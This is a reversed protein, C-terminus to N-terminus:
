LMLIDTALLPDGAVFISLDAVGDGNVDGELVGGAFRLEGGVGSFAANGVFSFDVGTGRLDVKDAGSVFDIIRDGREILHFAFTDAGAGGTLWDAGEFGDLVDNGGRGDIRNAVENGWIVDRASSGIANEITTGYAISLNMYESAFVGSVGTDAAIANANATRYSNVTNTIQTQSLPGFIDGSLATLNARAANVDAALPAAQGASSFSGAHLDLQVGANFGSLDITDQGGADYISLYPYANKSFDFVVNGANSNFGYTTDGARTTPDAGYKAQITLIDHLMPTQANSFLFEFWNVVRNGTNSGSWYSMITYQESDQAYEAYNSYTLDLDPDYNYAGPHSLGLTHGLEHVLTTKGYGNFGFWSNTWNV